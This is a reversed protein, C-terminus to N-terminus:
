KVEIHHGREELTAWPVEHDKLYDRIKETDVSLTMKMFNDPVQDENYVLPQKGGNKKYVIDRGGASIKVKGIVEMATKIRDKMRGINARRAKAKRSFLKSMEEAKAAEMELQDMIALYGEAKVELDFNLSDLTDAFAEEDEGLEYLQLFENAIDFLTNAM